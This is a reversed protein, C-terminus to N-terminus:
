GRLMSRWPSVAPRARRPDRRGRHPWRSAPAAGRRQREFGDCDPNAPQAMTYDPRGHVAGRRLGPGRRHGHGRASRTRRRPREDAVEDAAGPEHSPQRSREPVGGRGARRHRGDPTPERLAPRGEQVQHAPRDERPGSAGVRTQEPHGPALVPVKDTQDLAVADLAREARQVPGAHEEPDVLGLAPLGDDATGLPEGDPGAVEVVGQEGRVEAHVRASAAAHRGRDRDVHGGDSVPRDVALDQQLRAPADVGRVDLPAHGAALREERDDLVRAGAQGDAVPKELHIGGARLQVGGVAPAEPQRAPGAQDRSTGQRPRLVDRGVPRDVHRAPHGRDDPVASADPVVPRHAAGHRDGGGRLLRAQVEAARAERGTGLRHGLRPLRDDAAGADRHGDAVARRLRAPDAVPAQVLAGHVVHM